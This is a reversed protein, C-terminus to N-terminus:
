LLKGALVPSPFLLEDTETGDPQKKKYNRATDMVRIIDDYIINPEPLLIITNQGPFVEKIEVLKDKLKEYDFEGDPKREITLQPKDKDKDKAGVDLIGGIGAITFGEKRMFVTLTLKKEEPTPTPSADDVRQASARTAVPLASDIITLKIFTASLLLFPILITMLNMIPLINVDEPHSVRHLRQSPRGAM